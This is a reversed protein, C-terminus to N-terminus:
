TLASGMLSVMSWRRSARAQSAFRDDLLFLVVVRQKELYLRGIDSGTLNVQLHLDVALLVEAHERHDSDGEGYLVIPEAALAIHQCIFQVFEDACFDTGQILSQFSAVEEINIRSKCGAFQIKVAYHCGVVTIETEYGAM